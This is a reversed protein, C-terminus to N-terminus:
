KESEKGSGRGGYQGPAIQGSGSFRNGDPNGTEAKDAALVSFPRRVPAQGERQREPYGSETERSTKRLGSEASVEPFM